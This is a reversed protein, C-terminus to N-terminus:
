DKGTLLDELRFLIAATIFDPVAKAITELARVTDHTLWGTGRDRGSATELAVIAVLGRVINPARDPNAIAMAVLTDLVSWSRFPDYKPDGRMDLLLQSDSDKALNPNATM